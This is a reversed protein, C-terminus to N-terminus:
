KEELQREVPFKEDIRAKHEEIYEDLTGKSLQKEGWQNLTNRDGAYDMLPVGFGCSTQVAEIDIVFVQRVSHKNITPFYQNMWQNFEDSGKSVIKGYGYVRLILPTKEFSCWMFTIRGNEMIHNATENGSGAYDLYSLCQDNIVAISDYGKPSCNIRGDDSPSTAVFFINQNNIFSQLEESLERSFKGM